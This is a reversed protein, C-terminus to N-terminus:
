EKEIKPNSPEPLPPLTSSAWILGLFCYLFILGYVRIALGRSDTFVWRPKVQGVLLLIPALIFGGALPFLRWPNPILILAITVGIGVILLKIKQNM